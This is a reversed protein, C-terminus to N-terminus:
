HEDAEAVACVYVCILIRWVRFCIENNRKLAITKVVENSQKAHGKRAATLLIVLLLVAAM